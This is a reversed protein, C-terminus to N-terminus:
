SLAGCIISLKTERSENKMEAKKTNTRSSRVTSGFGALCPGHRFAIRQSGLHAQGTSNFTDPALNGGAVCAQVILCRGGLIAPSM